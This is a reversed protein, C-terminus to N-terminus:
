KRKSQLYWEKGKEMKQTGLINKITYKRAEEETLQQSWEVREEPKFGAGKCDYEAYLAEKEAETNSWNNWGAAVIHEGIECNVFVTKAFTRWPRGLYVKTAKENAILTCDKFVFGFAQGKYTSAATIYSNSKSLITCKQFLVTAGGFIFDTTGAIYCNKFYQKFGEGSTYVTDQNGLLNCGEILVRNAHISLAVAQGVEGATNQISLNSAYFDDGEVLVTSTHFTSNRGLNIKDFYDDYTIITKDKDEGILSVHPNWSYVHVKEKYVGNKIEIIVRQYPFTKSSNIAEQITTFDGSGDKAVIKHYSDKAACSSNNAYNNAEKSQAFLIFLTFCFTLIKKKTNM